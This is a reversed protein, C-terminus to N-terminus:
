KLVPSPQEYGKTALTRAERVGAQDADSACLRAAQEYEQIAAARDGALDAIKGLEIHSRGHIWPRAPVLLASKLEHTAREPQKLAVLSAGLSYRWRALEGFVRPRSDVALKALGEELTRQADLARGAKLLTSGAELWLLRNRPFRPQLERIVGLAADYRGEQNYIAILIFRAITQMDSPYQAAEEIMQISRERGGDRGALRVAPHTPPFLTSVAYRYTGVILGANKHNPDLELARLSVLYAYEAARLSEARNGEVTELYIARVSYAAGVQFHADADVFRASTRSEALRVARAIQDRLSVDLERTPPRQQLEPRPHRLSDEATTAGQQFLLDIWLTTAALRYAAPHDSDVAIAQQFTTLAREHDLNDALAQGKKRLERAPDAASPRASKGDEDFAVCLVVLGAVSSCGTSLLAAIACVIAPVGRVRRM